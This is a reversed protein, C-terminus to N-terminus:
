SCSVLASGTRSVARSRGAARAGARRKSEPSVDGAGLRRAAGIGPPLDNLRLGQRPPVFCPDSLAADAFRISLRSQSPKKRTAATAARVRQASPSAATNAAIVSLRNAMALSETSTITSNNPVRVKHSPSSRMASRAPSTSTSARASPGSNRRSIGSTGCPWGAMPRIVKFKAALTSPNSLAAVGMPRRAMRSNCVSLGLGSVALLACIRNRTSLADDSVSSGTLMKMYRACCPAGSGVSTNRGM